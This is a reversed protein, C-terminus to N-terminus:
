RVDLKRVPLHPRHVRGGAWRSSRISRARLSGVATAVLMCGRNSADNLSATGAVHDISSRMWHSGREGEM